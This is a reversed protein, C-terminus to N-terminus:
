PIHDRCQAWEEGYKFNTVDLVKMGPTDNVPVGLLSFRLNDRYLEPIWLILEGNKGRIWGDDSDESDEDTCESPSNLSILRM